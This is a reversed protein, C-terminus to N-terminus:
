NKLLEGCSSITSASKLRLKIVALYDRLFFSQAEEAIDASALSSDAM